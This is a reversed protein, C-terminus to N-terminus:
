PVGRVNDSPSACETTVSDKGGLARGQNALNFSRLSELKQSLSRDSAGSGNGGGTGTVPGPGPGAGGGLGAGGLRSGAGAGGGTGSGSKLERVRQRRRQARQAADQSAGSRSHYETRVSDGATRSPSGDSRGGPIAAGIPARPRPLVETESSFRRLLPGSSSASSASPSLPQDHHTPHQKNTRRFPHTEVDVARRRAPLQEQAPARMDSLWAPVSQPRVHVADPNREFPQHKTQEDLRDM